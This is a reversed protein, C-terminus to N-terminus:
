KDDVAVQGLVVGLRQSFASLLYADQAGQKRSGRLSKGDVVVAELCSPSSPELLQLVQEAWAGLRQELQDADLGRFVRQITSPSPAKGHAFGFLSLWPTGYNHGWEAIASPSRYGCLM